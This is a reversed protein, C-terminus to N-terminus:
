SVGGSCEDASMQGLLAGVQDWLASVQGQMSAPYTVATVHTINRVDEQIYQLALDDTVLLWRHLFTFVGQEDKVKEHQNAQLFMHFSFACMKFCGHQVSLRLLFASHFTANRQPFLTSLHVKYHAQGMTTPSALSNM